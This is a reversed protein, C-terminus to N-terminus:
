RSPMLVFVLGEKEDRTPAVLLIPQSSDPAQGEFEVPKGNLQGRLVFNWGNTQKRAILRADVKEGKVLVDTRIPDWNTEGLKHLCDYGSLKLLAVRESSLNEQSACVTTHARYVEVRWRIQSSSPAPTTAKETPQDLAAILERIRSQQVGSTALSPASVILINGMGSFQGDPVVRAENLLKAVEEASRHKLRFVLVGPQLLPSHWIQPVGYTVSPDYLFYHPPVVLPYPRIPRVYPRGLIIVNTKLPEAWVVTWNGSKFQVLFYGSPVIITPRSSITPRSAIIAGPLVIGSLGPVIVINGSSPSGFSLPPVVVICRSPDPDAFAVTTVSLLAVTLFRWLKM